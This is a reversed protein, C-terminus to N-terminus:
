RVCWYCSFNNADTAGCNAASNGGAVEVGSADYKTNVDSRFSKSKPRFCATASEITGLVTINDLKGGALTSFDGKLEGAQVIKDIGLTTYGTNSDVPGIAVSPDWPM